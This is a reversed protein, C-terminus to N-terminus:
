SIQLAHPTRVPTSIPSGVPALFEITGPTLSHIASYKKPVVTGSATIKNVVENQKGITQITVRKTNDEEKSEEQNRGCGAIVLGILLLSAVM